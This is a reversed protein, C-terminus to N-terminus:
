TKNRKTSKIACVSSVSNAPHASVLAVAAVRVRDDMVSVSSRSELNLGERSM